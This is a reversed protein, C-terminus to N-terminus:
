NNPMGYYDKTVILTGQKHTSYIKNDEVTINFRRPTGINTIQTTSVLKVKVKRRRKTKTVLLTKGDVCDFYNTGSTNPTLGGIEATITSRRARWKGNKKIYGKTKAKIKM